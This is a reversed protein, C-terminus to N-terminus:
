YYAGLVKDLLQADAVLQWEFTNAHVIIGHADLMSFPMFAMQAQMETQM